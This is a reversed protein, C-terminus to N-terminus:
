GPPNDGTPSIEESKPTNQPSLRCKGADRSFKAMVLMAILIVFTGFASEIASVTDKISLAYLFSIFTAASILYLLYAFGTLLYAIIKSM